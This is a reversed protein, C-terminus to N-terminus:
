HCIISNYSKLIYPKYNEYKDGIVVTHVNFLRETIDCYFVCHLGNEHYLRKRIMKNRHGEWFTIEHSMLWDRNKETVVVGIANYVDISNQVEKYYFFNMRDKKEWSVDMKSEPGWIEDYENQTHLIISGINGDGDFEIERYWKPMRNITVRCEPKNYVFYNYEM